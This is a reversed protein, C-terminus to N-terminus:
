LLRLQGKYVEYRMWPGDFGAAQMITRAQEISEFGVAENVDCTPVFQRGHYRCLGIYMPYGGSAQWGAVYPREPTVLSVNM